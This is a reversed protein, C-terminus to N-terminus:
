EKPSHRKVTVRVRRAERRDREAQLKGLHDDLRDLNIWSDGDRFYRGKGLIAEFCRLLHEDLNARDFACIETPTMKSFDPNDSDAM